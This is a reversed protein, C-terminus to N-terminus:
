YGDGRHGGSCWDGLAYTVCSAMAAEDALRLAGLADHVSDSATVVEHGRTLEGADGVVGDIFPQM